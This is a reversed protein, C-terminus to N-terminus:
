WLWLEGVTSATPETAQVHVGRRADALRGSTIDAAAHAHTAPAFTSPKGTVEDWTPWRTAYDPINVIQGWTHEHPPNSATALYDNTIGTVVQGLTLGSLFTITDSDTETYHVPSFKRVGDVYVALNNAGVEFDLTSFNFITQSATATISEVDQVILGSAVTDIYAQVENFTAISNPDDPDFSVNLLSHGNLDLDAEMVNPTSGDRSLTNDLADSVADFAANLAETSLYGSNITPLTIKAM